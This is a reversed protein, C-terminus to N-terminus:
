TRARTRKRARPASPLGASSSSFGLNPKPMMSISSQSAIAEVWRWPVVSLAFVSFAYRLRGFPLARRAGITFNPWHETEVISKFRHFFADDDPAGALM